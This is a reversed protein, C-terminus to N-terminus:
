QDDRFEKKLENELRNLTVIIKDQLAEFESAKSGRYLLFLALQVNNEKVLDYLGSQNMRYVERMQRKIRNRDVAKKFRKKPVSFGIQIPVDAPLEVKKWLLVVPGGKLSHGETFLADILVKSKLHEKKPSTQKKKM